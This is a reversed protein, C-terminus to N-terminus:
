NKLAADRAAVLAIKDHGHEGSLVLRSVFRFLGVARVLFARPCERSSRDGNNIGARGGGMRGLTEQYWAVSKELDRVPLQIVPLDPRERSSHKTGSVFLRSWPSRSM